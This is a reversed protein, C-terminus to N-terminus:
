AKSSFIVDRYHSDTAIHGGTYLLDVRVWNQEIWERGEGGERGGERRRGTAWWGGGASGLSGVRVLSAGGDYSAAVVYGVAGVTYSYCCQM